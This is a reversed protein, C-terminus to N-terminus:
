AASTPHQIPHPTRHPAHHTKHDHMVGLTSGNKQQAGVQRKFRQLYERKVAIAELDFKAKPLSHMDQAGIGIVEPHCAHLRDPAATAILVQM